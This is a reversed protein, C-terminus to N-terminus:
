SDHERARPDRLHRRGRGGDRRAVEVRGVPVERAAHVGRRESGEPRDESGIRRKPTRRLHVRRYGHARRVVQQSRSVGPRHARVFGHGSRDELRAGRVSPHLLHVRRAAVARRRPVEVIWRWDGRRWDRHNDTGARTRDKLRHRRPLSARLHRRVKPVDGIPAM